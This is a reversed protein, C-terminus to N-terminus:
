GNESDLGVYLVQHESDYKLQMISYSACYVHNNLYIENLAMMYNADVAFVAVSEKIEKFLDQNFEEDTVFIKKNGALKVAVLEFRSDINDALDNFTKIFSKDLKHEYGTHVLLYKPAIETFPM